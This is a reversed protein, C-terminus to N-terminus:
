SAPSGTNQLASFPCRNFRTTRLTRPDARDEGVDKQVVTKIGPYVLPAGPMCTALDHDNAVGVIHNSSGLVFAIRPLQQVSEFLSQGLEPQREILILGPQALKPPEGSLTSCLRTQPSWLREVKKPEGV